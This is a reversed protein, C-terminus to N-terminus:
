PCTEGAPLHAQPNAVGLATMAACKQATTSNRFTRGLNVSKAVTQQRSSEWSDMVRNFRDIAYARTQANTCRSLTGDGDPDRVAADFQSNSCSFRAGKDQAPTSIFQINAAWVPLAILLVLLTLSTKV